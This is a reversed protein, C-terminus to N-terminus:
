ACRNFVLAAKPFRLSPPLVNRKCGFKPLNGEDETVDDIRGRQREPEAGLVVGADEREVPADDFNRDLLEASGYFPVFAIAHQAEDSVGISVFVRGFPSDFCRKQRPIEDSSM